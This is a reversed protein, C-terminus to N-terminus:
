CQWKVMPFCKQWILKVKQLTRFVLQLMLGPVSTACLLIIANCLSPECKISKFKVLVTRM